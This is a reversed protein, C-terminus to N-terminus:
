FDMGMLIIRVTFGGKTYLKVKKTSSSSIQAATCFPIHEVTLFSIKSSLTTLFAISNVFMVYATLTLFKHLEYLDRLIQTLNM